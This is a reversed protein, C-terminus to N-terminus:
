PRVKRFRATVISCARHEACEVTVADIDPNIPADGRIVTTKRREVHPTFLRTGLWHRSARVFTASPRILPLSCAM